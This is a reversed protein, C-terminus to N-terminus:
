KRKREENEWREYRYISEVIPRRVMMWSACLAQNEVSYQGDRAAMCSLRMVGHRAEDPMQNLSFAATCNDIATKTRGVQEVTLTRLMAGTRNAQTASIICIDREHALNRLGEWTERFREHDADGGGFKMLDAYDLLLVEDALGTKKERVDLLRAIDDVGLKGKPRYAIDINGGAQWLNQAGLVKSKYEGPTNLREPEWETWWIMPEWLTPDPKDGFHACQCCPIFDPFQKVLEEPQTEEIYKKDPMPVMPSNGHGFPCKGTAGKVCTFYPVHERKRDFVVGAECQIIKRAIAASGDDGLTLFLARCGAAAADCAAQILMTSKGVKARGVFVILSDRTVKPTLLREAYGLGFTFLPAPLNQFVDGMLSLLGSGDGFQEPAQHASELQKDAAECTDLDGSLAAQKVQDAHRLRACISLHKRWRELLVAVTSNDPKWSEWKEVIGVADKSLLGSEALRVAEFELAEGGIPQGTKVAHDHCVSYLAAFTPVLLLGRWGKASAAFEANLTFHRLFATEEEALVRLRIDVDQTM